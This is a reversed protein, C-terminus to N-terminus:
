RLTSYFLKGCRPCLTQFWKNRGFDFLGEAMVKGPSVDVIHFGLWCHVAETRSLFAYIFDLLRAKVM